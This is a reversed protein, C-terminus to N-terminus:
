LAFGVAAVLVVMWNLGGMAFGRSGDATVGSEETDTVRGKMQPKVNDVFYQNNNGVVNGPPYYECM